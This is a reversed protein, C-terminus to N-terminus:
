SSSLKGDGIAYRATIDALAPAPAACLLILALRAAAARPGIM